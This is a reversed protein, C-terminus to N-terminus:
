DTQAAHLADARKGLAERRKTLEEEVKGAEDVPDVPPGLTDQLPVLRPFKARLLEPTEREELEPIQTCGAAAAILILLLPKM